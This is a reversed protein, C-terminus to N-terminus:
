NVLESVQREIFNFISLFRAQVEVPDFNIVALILTYFFSSNLVFYFFIQALNILNNVLRALIYDRGLNLLGPLNILSIIRCIELRIIRHEYNFLEPTNISEKIFQVIKDCARKM